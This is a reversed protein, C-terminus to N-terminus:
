ASVRDRGVLCPQKGEQAWQQDWPILFPRTPCRTLHPLLGWAWAMLLAARRVWCLSPVPGADVSLISTGLGGTPM